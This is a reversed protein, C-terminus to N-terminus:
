CPVSERLIDRSMHLAMLETVTFPLPLSSEFGDVLRWYSSRGERETYLPYGAEQIAELDRYLTRPPVDLEGSLEAVTLVRKRSELLRLIKWQRALQTGRMLKFEMSASGSQVFLASYEIMPGPERCVNVFDSLDGDSNGTPRIIDSAVFMVCAKGQGQM